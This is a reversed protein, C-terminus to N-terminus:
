GERAVYVARSATIEGQGVFHSQVHDGRAEGIPPAAARKCLDDIIAEDGMDGAASQIPFHRCTTVFRGPTNIRM